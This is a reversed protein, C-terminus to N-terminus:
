PLKPGSELNPKEDRKKHESKKNALWWALLKRFDGKFMEAKLEEFTQSCDAAESSDALSRTAMHDCTWFQDQLAELHSHSSAAKAQSCAVIAATFVILTHLSM